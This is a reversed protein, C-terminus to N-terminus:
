TMGVAGGFVSLEEIALLAYGGSWVLLAAGAGLMAWQTVRFTDRQLAEYYLRDQRAPTPDQAGVRGERIRSLEM